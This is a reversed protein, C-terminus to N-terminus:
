NEYNSRAILFLTICPRMIVRLYKRDMGPIAAWCRIRGDQQIVKKVPNTIVFEIWELRIAIRDPRERMARFYQTCKVQWFNSFVDGRPFGIFIRTM